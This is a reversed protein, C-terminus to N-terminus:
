YPVLRQYDQPFDLDLALGPDAIPCEFVPVGTQRLFEKLTRARSTRLELFAERPLIVPHHRRGGYAPQTISGPHRRHFSLLARLSAARLHPQDGLAIVWATLGADWGKWHAACLISSFMGRQPRPNQIRHRAPFNLRRLEAALARDAPRCVIAIQRADLARWQALLHGIVSTGAWPLLLKPRGMRLSAGAGLIVVGAAFAPQLHIPGTV